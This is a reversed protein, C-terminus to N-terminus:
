SIMRKEDQVAMLAISSIMMAAISFLAPWFVDYGTKGILAIIAGCIYAAFFSGIWFEENM